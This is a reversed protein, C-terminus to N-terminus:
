SSFGVDVHRGHIAQIHDAGAGDREIVCSEVSSLNVSVDISGCDLEDRLFHRVFAITLPESL